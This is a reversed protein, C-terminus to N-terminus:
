EDFAPVEWDPAGLIFTSLRQINILNLFYDFPVGFHEFLQPVVVWHPLHHVVLVKLEARCRIAGVDIRLVSSLLTDLARVAM